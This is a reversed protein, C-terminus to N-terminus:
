LAGGELAAARRSEAVLVELTPVDTDWEVITSVAGFRRVAKVYLDWVTDPVPGEHTDVVLTGQHRHGALHIEWVRDTPLGALYDAPDFGHNSASVRLNNVDLLIGCGSQRAVASLFEWEPMTSAKFELYSAPNELLVPTAGLRDQVVAVRRIVHQLCEETYPLPLLDLERGDLSCWALHDSVWVPEVRNVLARLRALYQEDLPDVSGISLTTGHLALPREARVRDLVELRVGGRAGLFRESVVEVWSVPPIERLVSAYHEPGLSIGHGHYPRSDPGVGPRGPRLAAM